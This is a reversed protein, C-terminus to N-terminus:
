CPPLPPIILILTRVASLSLLCNFANKVVIFDVSVVEGNEPNCVQLSTEGVRTM